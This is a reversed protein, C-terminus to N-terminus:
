INRLQKRKNWKRYRWKKGGVVGHAAALGVVVNVHDFEGFVSYKPDSELKWM